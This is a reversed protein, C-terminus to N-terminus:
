PTKATPKSHLNPFVDDQSYAQLRNPARNLGKLLKGVTAPAADGGDEIRQVTRDSLEALRALAARSLGERERIERLRNASLDM